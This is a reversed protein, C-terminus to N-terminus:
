LINSSNRSCIESPWLQGTLSIKKLRKLHQKSISKNLFPKEKENNILRVAISDILFVRKNGMLKKANGSNKM